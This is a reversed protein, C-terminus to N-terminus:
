VISNLKELCNRMAEIRARCKKRRESTHHDETAHKRFGDSLPVQNMWKTAPLCVTERVNSLVNDVLNKHAVAWNAEIAALVRRKHQEDLPMRNFDIDYEEVTDQIVQAIDERVTDIDYDQCVQYDEERKSWRVGLVEHTINSQIKELLNDPLVLQERYKSTLYHNMTKFEREANLSAHMKDHCTRMMTQCEDKWNADMLTLLEPKVHPFCTHDFTYLKELHTGINTHLNDLLTKWQDCQVGLLKHFTSEGQFFPCVFCDHTYHEAVLESTISDKTSHISERFDALLSSLCTGVEGGKSLTEQIDILVKVNDPPTEGLVNMEDLSEDLITQIKKKLGPLNTRIREDLLPPLRTRLSQIGTYDNPLNYQALVEREKDESYEEGGPRCVVAHASLRGVEKVLSAARTKSPESDFTDFKTLVRLTRQGHPDYKRALDLARASEDDRQAETVIVILSQEDAIYTRIMEVVEGEGEGNHIIGPLDVLVLDWCGGGEADIAIATDDVKVKKENINKHQIELIKAELLGAEVVEDNITFRITDCMDEECHKTRVVIPQRTCIGSKNPLPVGTIEGLASSKGSSQDGIVVIQPLKLDFQEDTSKLGIITQRVQEMMELTWRYQDMDNM